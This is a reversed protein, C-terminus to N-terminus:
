GEKEHGATAVELIERELGDVHVVKVGAEELRKRGENEGVFIEPERVGCVVKRVAVGGDERRLRLIREVCTLNGASRKNCPEMTTYLVVDEPLLPGLREEVSGDYSPPIAHLSGLKLFCCQEAHTNGPAELTYGTTLIPPTSSPSYLLAGVRFNTPKPPSSLAHSLALRLHQLHQAHDQPTM